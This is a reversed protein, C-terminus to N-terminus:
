LPIKIKGTYIAFGDRSMIDIIKKADEENYWYAVAKSNGDKDCICVMYGNDQKVLGAYNEEGVPEWIGNKNEKLAIAPMASSAYKKLLAAAARTRSQGLKLAQFYQM